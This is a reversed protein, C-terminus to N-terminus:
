ERRDQAGPDDAERHTHATDYPKFNQPIGQSVLFVAYIICIPLLLYYHLRVLDVWFNGM